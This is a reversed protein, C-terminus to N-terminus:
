PITTSISIGLAAASDAILDTQENLKTIAGAIAVRGPSSDVGQIARDFPVPIGYIATRAAVFADRTEEAVTPDEALVLDYIGGCRRSGHRGLYANEIGIEDNRHDVHTNDAFCSHEDEQDKTDFAVSLREGTLEGGSLTGMGTLLRRLAEDPNEALFEARYNGATDPAWAERVATLDSVLLEAAAKLYEGRRAQNSATGSGDTLYDTYPRAGPGDDDLDQGWLLFEIAHYGSSITTESEGENLEILLETDIAPFLDPANIIGAEADDAVYDIYSEDLPWANIFGEPGTDANDIPGDYFRAMETQLYAPRASKWADKAAQLGEATPAAVFADISTKLRTAGALADGYAAYLNDAYCAVASARTVTGIPACGELAASVAGILENIAIDSNVDTDLPACSVADVGLALNVGSIIEDISVAGNADCDGVCSQAAGREASALVLTLALVSWFRGMDVGEMEGPPFM